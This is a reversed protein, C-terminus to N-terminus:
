SITKDKVYAQLNYLGPDLKPLLIETGSAITYWKSKKNLRYLISDKRHNLFDTVKFSLIIDRDYNITYSKMSNLMLLDVETFSVNGVKFQSLKLPLSSKVVTEWNNPNTKIIGESSSFYLTNQSYAKGYLKFQHSALGDAQYYNSFSESEINFASLGRETTLWLNGNSYPIICYVINDCLGNSTNYVSLIDLNYNCNYLGQGSTAIWINKGDDYFDNVSINLTADLSTSYKYRFNLKDPSLEYICLGRSLGVLIRGKSDKYIKKIGGGISDPNLNDKFPNISDVKGSILNFQYIINDKTALWYINKQVELFGICSVKSFQSFSEFAIPRLIEPKDKKFELQYLGNSGTLFIDNNISSINNFKVPKNKKDLSSLSISNTFITDTINVGLDNASILYKKWLLLGVPIAEQTKGKNNNITKHVSFHQLDPHYFQLGESTTIWGTNDPAWFINRIDNSAIGKSASQSNFTNHSVIENNFIQYIGDNATGLWITQYRKSICNIIQTSLKSVPQKWIFQDHEEKLVWLGSSSGVWLENFNDNYFLANITSNEM